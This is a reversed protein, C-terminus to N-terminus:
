SRLRAKLQILNFEWPWEDVTADPNLAHAERLKDAFWTAREVRHAHPLATESPIVIPLAMPAAGEGSM